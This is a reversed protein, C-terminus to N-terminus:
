VFVMAIENNRALLTWTGDDGKRSIKWGDTVLDSVAINMGFPTQVECGQFLIKANRVPVSALEPILTYVAHEMRIRWSSDEVLHDTEVLWGEEPYQRAMILGAPGAVRLAMWGRGDTTLELFDFDTALQLATKSSISQRM